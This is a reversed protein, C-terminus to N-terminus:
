LQGRRKAKIPVVLSIGVKNPGIWRDIQQYGRKFAKGGDEFVDYPRGKSYFYGLGITFELHMRDKFVPMAYLYDVSCNVFEGQQGSYNRELDYYGAMVNLGISHGKLRDDETRDKGFWYRGEIDAALIQFCEKKHSNRLIWPFYYDAGVSWNNGVPVEAGINLLPVLLNSRLALVTRRPLPETEPAVPVEEAVPQEAATEETPVTEEPVEDAPTTPVMEEAPASEPQRYYICVWTATRLRPMYRRRIFDWTYGDDLQQLRWKRTESSIGETKMIQLVKNRDHRFYESDVIEILGPWNESLPSIIITEPDLITSDNCEKMLFDRAAIGRHYALRANYISSGEPSAWSHITIGDIKRSTALVARLSDIQSSNDLYTEDIKYSDFRYHITFRSSDSPPPVSNNAKVIHTSTFTTLLCLIICLLRNM